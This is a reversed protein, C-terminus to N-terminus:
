LVMVPSLLMSNGSSDGDESVSVPGLSRMFTLMGSLVLGGGSIIALPKVSSSSSDSAFEADSSSPSAKIFEDRPTARRSPALSPREGAEEISEIFPWDGPVLARPSVNAFPLRSLGGTVSGTVDNVLEANLRGVAAVIGRENKSSPM